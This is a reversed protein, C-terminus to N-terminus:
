KVIRYVKFGENEYLPPFELQKSKEVVVYSANYKQSIEVFNGEDLANYQDRCLMQCTYGYEGDCHGFIESNCLDTMRELIKKTYAEDLVGLVTDLWEGVVTRESYLRFGYLYPPSIVVESPSTNQRMWRQVDEFDDRPFDYGYQVSKTITARPNTLLQKFAEKGLPNPAEKGVLSLEFLGGGTHSAVFRLNITAVTCFLLLFALITILVMKQMRKTLRSKVVEFCFMGAISCTIFFVSLMGLKLPTIWSPSSFTAITSIAFGTIGTIGAVVRLVAQKLYVSALLILFVLLAKFNGVFFAAGLGSLIIRAYIDGKSYEKVIFHSVYAAGFYVIWVTSRVFQLSMIYNLPIVYTGIIMIGLLGVLTWFFVEVVRDRQVASKVNERRAYRYAIFILGFFVFFRIWRHIYVPTNWSLIFYHHVVTLKMVDLSFDSMIINTSSGQFIIWLLIPSASLSFVLISTVITRIGVKKFHLMMYVLCMLFVPISYVMHLNTAIGAMLVAVVYREKLMFAFACLLLPFAFLREGFFPLLTESGMSPKNVLLFLVSLWAVRGDKFMVKALFFAALFIAYHALVYSFFAVNEVEFVKFLPTFLIEVFSYLTPAQAVVIDQPYLSHDVRWKNITARLAADDRGYFYGNILVSIITLLFILALAGRVNKNDKGM